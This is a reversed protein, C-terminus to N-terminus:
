PSGMRCSAHRAWLFSVVLKLATQSSANVRVLSIGDGSLMLGALAVPKEKDWSQAGTKDTAFTIVTAKFADALTPNHSAFVNFPRAGGGRDGVQSSPVPVSSPASCREVKMHPRSGAAVLLHM